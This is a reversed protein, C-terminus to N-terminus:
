CNSFTHKCILSNKEKNFWSGYDDPGRHKLKLIVKSRNVIDDIPQNDLSFIGAIGCM